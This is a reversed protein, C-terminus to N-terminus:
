GLQCLAPNGAWDPILVCLCVCVLHACVRVHLFLVTCGGVSDKPASFRPVDFSLQLFRSESTKDKM